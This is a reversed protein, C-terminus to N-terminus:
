CEFCKVLRRSRREVDKPMEDVALLSEGLVAFTPTEAPNLHAEVHRTDLLNPYGLAYLLGAFYTQLEARCMQLHKFTRLNCDSSELKTTVAAIMKEIRAAEAEITIATPLARQTINREM